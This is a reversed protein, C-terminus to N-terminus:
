AVCVKDCVCLGDRNFGAIEVEDGAIVFFPLCVSVYYYVLLPLGYDVEMFILHMWDILDIMLVGELVWSRTQLVKRWLM